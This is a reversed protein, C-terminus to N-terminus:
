EFKAIHRIHHFMTDLTDNENIPFINETELSSIAYTRNPLDIFFTFEGEEGMHNTAWKEESVSKRIELNEIALTDYCFGSFGDRYEYLHNKLFEINSDVSEKFDNYYDLGRGKHKFGLILLKLNHGYLNELDAKTLCGDIVHLVTNNLKEVCDFLKSDTSDTLSIGIGYILKKDQWEKLRDVCSILHKQNITLNCIIKNNKMRILFDELGPHSLDNANLALETGPHMHKFIPDNLDAHIGNENCDLYCYKCGGNCKTTITMDISEAFAPIFSDLNNRKTKTGDDYLRVVYNGNKYRALLSM